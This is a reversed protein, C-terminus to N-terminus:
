IVLCYSIVQKSTFLELERCDYLHITPHPIANTQLDNSVFKLSVQLCHVDVVYTLCM